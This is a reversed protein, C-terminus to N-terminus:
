VTGNYGDVFTWRIDNREYDIDLRSIPLHVFPSLRESVNYPKVKSNDGKPICSKM